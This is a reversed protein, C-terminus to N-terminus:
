GQTTQDERRARRRRSVASLALVGIGFLILVAGWWINLDAVVNESAPPDPRFLGYVLIIAGFVALISGIYYGIALAHRGGGEPAAEQDEPREDAPQDAHTM